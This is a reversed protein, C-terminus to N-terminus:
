QKKPKILNLLDNVPSQSPPQNSNVGSPANTSHRGTLLGGLGQILSSANTGGPIAGGFGRLATGAIAMKNIDKKPDGVTGRMTLFDPLKVYPQNTPYGAPVLNLRNAIPQSLSVSVPIQMTSNTLIPALVISGTADALFASSQVEAQQLNVRGSGANGKALIGQIPSKKLEDSLGGGGTGLVGSLVSGVAGEPNRFLEPIAAVVDIVSRLSRSKINVVSLNLNTSSVDFQGNLNKQLSAGTTGAGSLKATATIAGSLQGKREPQFSNVLPALPIARAGLNLDYKYGPVGLDLDVASSIPAGNLALKFPDLLVHGGNIKATAVFNTIEMERLYFSGVNLDATFNTLPLNMADPEQEPGGPAPTTPAPTQTSRGPANGKTAPKSAFLDYYRTVDLSDATLKINGQMANTRTMDIHGSLQVENKARETPTLGLECQRVDAVQGRLSADLQMKAALPTSPIQNKPDNVVLNTIQLDAKVSSDGGPTYQAAANANMNVSVLKKDALMPGLFPTLGNQNLDALKAALQASQNTRDYTATLDFNGGPKGDESLKGSFKRVQFQRPTAGVDLDATAAFGHLETKGFQGTLGSLELNGTVTQMDGHQVVRGKLEATGASVSVDPQPMLQYLRALDAQATLQLDANTNTLNCTGSGSVTALPQNRQSLQLKYQSLNVQKLDTATGKVQLLVGAQSVQNTGIAAVLNDLQSNLDFTLQQGGQASLLKLQANLLGASVADGVFPKWDALNFRTVALNFASDGVGNNANGWSLSMPSTLEGHLLQAGQQSANVTLARLLANSRSTDVTVNYAARLDLTPTTQNTRILQFKGVTVEGAATVLSGAKELQIENTSNITTTGFDMGSAAGALNLVQNDISSIRLALKGENKQMDFPGSVRLEGLPANAKKFQLVVQKIETPTVDCDLDSGLTAIGAFAGEARSVGLHTTGKISGPKLDETLAFAFNGDLKAELLGNTGPAPPHNESKIDSSLQLNATQANKLDSLTVNLNSLEVVDQTGGKYLKVRRVTAGTLALKKLDIQQPKSPTKPQEPKKEKTEPKEQSPKLLPDLNSTGDPNEVVVVTPSSVTIEQVRITGRVIDLLSYRLRVEPATLLPETGTTQVKLNRLTVSKFPSVDADSVTITANVSKSVRPLVVGKLFASSTGVFYVLVLLVILIGLVWALGRLWRPKKRPAPPTITQDAM